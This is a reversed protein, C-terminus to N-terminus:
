PKLDTASQNTTQPAGVVVENKRSKPSMEWHLLKGNKVVGSIVATGSLHLKFNVDWGAPWAPLLFIKGKGEQVLMRQLAISGSGFHDFDPCSDPGEHGYLPFRCLTSAKRFRQVLGKFAEAANGALAWDIQDQTWCSCEFSDKSRRHEMTTTVMESTGYAVGHM